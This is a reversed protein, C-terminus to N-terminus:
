ANEGETQKCINRPGAHCAAPSCRQCVKLSDSMQCKGMLLVLHGVLPLDSSPSKLVFSFTPQCLEWQNIKM